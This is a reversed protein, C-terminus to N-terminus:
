GGAGGLNGFKTALVVGARRGKLARGLLEENQGKGYADSSDLLTIGADLADHILAVSAADDSPGYTGSFSMCGLGIASVNIGTKGLARQPLSQAM